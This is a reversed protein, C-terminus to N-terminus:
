NSLCFVAEVPYHDSIRGSKGVDASDIFERPIRGVSVLRKFVSESVIFHDYNNAPKKQPRSTPEDVLVHLKKPGEIFFGHEQIMGELPLWKKEAHRDSFAKGKESPLNFDGTIIIDPDNNASQTYAKLWDLVAFFEKKSAAADGEKFTLHLSLLLFDFGDVKVHSWRVPHIAKARDPKGTKKNAFLFGQATITSQDIRFFIGNDQSDPTNEFSARWTTTGGPLLSEFLKLGNDHAIEQAAFVIVSTSFVMKYAPKILALRKADMAGFTQVNWSVLEFTKACSSSASFSIEPCLGMLVFGCLLGIKNKM